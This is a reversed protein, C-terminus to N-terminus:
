QTYCLPLCRYWSFFIPAPMTDSRKFQIHEPAIRYGAIGNESGSAQIKAVKGQACHAATKGAALTALRADIASIDHFRDGNRCQNPM